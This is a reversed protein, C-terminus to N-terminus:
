DESPPAATGTLVLAAARPVWGSAWHHELHETFEYIHPIGLATLQGHVGDMPHDGDRNPMLVIRPRVSELLAKQQREILRPIAYREFNRATGFVEIMRFQDPKVKDVPADWAVAGEFLGPHRILLMVAGYGSKSFGLLFRGAREEVVPYHHGVWPIVTEIFHREQQLAPDDPHDAFWPTAIYAPAVCIVGYRNAIDAKRAEEIGSGWRSTTGPAVPLIYLVPYRTDPKMDAPPLVEITTPGPQYPGSVRHREIPDEAHAAHSLLGVGIM